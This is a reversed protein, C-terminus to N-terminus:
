AWFFGYAKNFGKERLGHLSANQLYPAYNKGREQHTLFMDFMYVDNDEFHIGLWKIDPHDTGKASKNRVSYWIDGIVENGRLLAYARYDMDLCRLAKLYRSKVPYSLATRQFTAPTIELLHIDSEGPSDLPKLASLDKVVPVAVKNFYIIERLLPLFGKTNIFEQIQHMRMLVYRIM